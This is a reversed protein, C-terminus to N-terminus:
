LKLEGLVKEYQAILDDMKADLEKLARSCRDLKEKTAQQCFSEKDSQWYGEIITLAREQFHAVHSLLSPVTKVSDALQACCEEKLAALSPSKKQKKAVFQESAFIWCSSIVVVSLVIRMIRSAVM